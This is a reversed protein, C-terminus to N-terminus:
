GGRVESRTEDFDKSRNDQFLTERWFLMRLNYSLHGGRGNTEVKTWKVMDTHRLELSTYQKIGKGGDKICRSSLEFCELFPDLGRTSLKM